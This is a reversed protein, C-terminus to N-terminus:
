VSRVRSPPIRLKRRLLKWPSRWLLVRILRRETQRSPVAFREAPMTALVRSRLEGISITLADLRGVTPWTELSCPPEKTTKLPSVRIPEWDSFQTSTGLAHFGKTRTETWILPCEGLTRTAQRSPNIQREWAFFGESKPSVDPPNEWLENPNGLHICRFM